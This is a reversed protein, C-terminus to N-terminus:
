DFNAFDGTIDTCSFTARTIGRSTATGSLVNAAIALGAPLTTVSAYTLADGDGDVCLGTLDVPTMASNLPVKYIVSAPATAASPIHNNDYWILTDAHAANASTDWFTMTVSQRVTNCNGTSDGSAPVFSFHGDGRVTFVCSSPSTVLPAIVYDSVAIAPSAGAANFMDIPSNTEISTLVVGQYGPPITPTVTAGYVVSTVANGFRASGSFTIVAPDYSATQTFCQMGNALTRGGNLTSPTSQTDFTMGPGSVWTNDGRTSALAEVCGDRPGSAFTISPPDQTTSAAWAIDIVDVPDSTNYGTWQSYLSGCEVTNTAFGAIDVTAGESGSAIKWFVAEDGFTDPSQRHGEKTWGSPTSMLVASSNSLDYCSVTLKVLTGAAPSGINARFKLAASTGTLEQTYGGTLPTPANAFAALPLMAWLAVLAKV